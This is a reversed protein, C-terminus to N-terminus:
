YIAKLALCTYYYRYHRCKGWDGFARFEFKVRISVPWPKFKKERYSPHLVTQLPDALCAHFVPNGAGSLDPM